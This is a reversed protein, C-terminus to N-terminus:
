GLLEKKRASFLDKDAPTLTGQHKGFLDKLAEIDPALKILQALPVTTKKLPTHVEAVSPDAFGSPMSMSKSSNNNTASASGSALTNQASSDVGGVAEVPRPLDEGYFLSLGIGTAMAITKAMCRQLANNVDPSKPKMIGANKFDTVPYIETTINGDGLDVSVQVYAYGAEDKMYPLLVGNGNDFTHKIVKAHPVNEKLIRYAHAWSLYDFGNKKEKIGRVDIQSMKAWVSM